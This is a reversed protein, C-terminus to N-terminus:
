GVCWGSCGLALLVFMSRCLLSPMMNSSFFLLVKKLVFLLCYVVFLSCWVVFLLCCVVLLLCVVFLLCCVVCLVCCVVCLVCCGDHKLLLVAVMLVEVQM